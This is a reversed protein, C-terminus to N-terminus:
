RPEEPVTGPKAGGPRSWEYAAWTSQVLAVPTWHIVREAVQVSM